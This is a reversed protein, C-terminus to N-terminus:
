QGPGDKVIRFVPYHEIIPAREQAPLELLTVAHREKRGAVARGAAARVNTM